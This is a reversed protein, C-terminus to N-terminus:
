APARSPASPAAAPRAADAAAIFQGRTLGARSPLRSDPVGAATALSRWRRELDADLPRDPDLRHGPFAEFYQGVILPGRLASTEPTPALGHLGGLTGWWQTAAFLSDDPSVDAVYITAARDRHLVAQLEAVPVRQVTLRQGIALAAAHGAAQGLSMWIPEYRLACFGVHSSSVAGPVLLNTVTRPVLVGYPVQYPPTPLYFEGTHRGGFRPGEHATGHCNPGYDGAAVADRHLIARADGAAHACDAQTYVHAGQMRRAERVYLKPPLHGTETFEDRCWGWARAEERFRAPVAADTQLFYLLGVQDRLHDAHIRGRTAVDGDPWGINAGPLSLRVEANSVDNIDYTENPLPPLHAKFIARTPPSGFIADIRGRELVELVGTFDERRYGPPATPMVRRRPDRTMTFRFNYAQLQRDGAAPALSEGHEARGERGVRWSVGAAAMVDGEYTADIVIGPEVQRTAGDPALFSISALRAAGDPGRMEVGAVAHDLWLTISARAQLMAQLVRLNVSPEGFTGRFADRAQASDVGYTRAYHAHVERAFALFTGSLGEFTRFDTHSLGCTLLGGIRPTPEVLTVALGGTAAALAAAIGAPTAGVVLVDPRAATQHARAPRSSVRGQGAVLAGAGVLFARRGPRM